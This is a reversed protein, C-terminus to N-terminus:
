VALVEIGNARFGALADATIGSDTILIDIDTVPCILAPSVMAVKSSDAVVIVQKAQRVMARFVAAEDPEITTAGRLVDVGCAGIFAKDLFVGSLTEM